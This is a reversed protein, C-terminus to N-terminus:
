EQCRQHSTMCERVELTGSIKATTKSEEIRCTNRFIARRLSSPRTNHSGTGSVDWLGMVTKLASVQIRVRQAPTKCYLVRRLSSPPTNRVAPTQGMWKLFM